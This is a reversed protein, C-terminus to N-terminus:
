QSNYNSHNRFSSKLGTRNEWFNWYSINLCENSRSKNSFNKEILKKDADLLGYEEYPDSIEIKKVQWLDYYNNHVNNQPLCYEYFVTVNKFERTTLYSMHSATDTYDITVPYMENVYYASKNILSTENYEKFSPVYYNFYVGSKLFYINNEKEYFCFLYGDKDSKLVSYGKNREENEQFYEIKFKNNVDEITIPDILYEIEIDLRFNFLDEESYKNTIVKDIDSVPTRNLLVVVFIVSCLCISILIIKKM